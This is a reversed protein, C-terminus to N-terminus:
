RRKSLAAIGIGAILLLLAAIEGFAVSVGFILSGICLLILFSVIESRKSSNDGGGGRRLIHSILAYRFLLGGGQTGAGATVLFFLLFAAGSFAIAFLLVAGTM